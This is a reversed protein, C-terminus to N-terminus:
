GEVWEQKEEPKRNGEQLFTIQSYWLEGPYMTNVCLNLKCSKFDMSPKVSQFHLGLTIRFYTVSITSDPQLASPKVQLPHQHTYDKIRGLPTSVFPIKRWQM